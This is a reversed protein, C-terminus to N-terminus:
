PQVAEAAARLAATVPGPGPQTDNWRALLVTMVLGTEIRLVGCLATKAEYTSSGDRDAAVIAHLVCRPGSFPIGWGKDTWGEDVLLAAARNLVM